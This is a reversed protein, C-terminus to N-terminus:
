LGIKIGTKIEVGLENGLELLLKRVGDEHKPKVFRIIREIEESLMKDDSIKSEYNLEKITRWLENFSDNVWKIGTNLGSNTIHDRAYDATEKELAIINNNRIILTDKADSLKNNSFLKMIDMLFFEQLPIGGDGVIFAKDPKFTEKFLNLGETEKTRNSKVEIAVLSKAKRLVFDVENTGNRWYFVDFHHKFGMNILWISSLLLPISKNVLCIAFNFVLM